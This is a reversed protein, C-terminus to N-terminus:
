IQEKPSLRDIENDIFIKAKELDEVLKANELGKTVGDIRTARAIYQVAQGGNSSLWRTLDIVENGDPLQYYSPSTADQEEPELEISEALAQDQNIQIVEVGDQATPDIRIVELPTESYADTGNMDPLDAHKPKRSFINM